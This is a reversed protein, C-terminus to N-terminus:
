GELSTLLDFATVQPAAGLATTLKAAPLRAAILRHQLTDLAAAAATAPDLTVNLGAGRLIQAVGKAAANEARRRAAFSRGLTTLTRDQLATAKRDGAELAATERSITTDIATAAAETARTARLLTQGAPQARVRRQM